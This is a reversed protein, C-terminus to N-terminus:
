AAEGAVSAPWAAAATRTAVRLKASRARPNAAIEAAQPAIARRQALAFSAARAPTPDEPLHRSGRAMAGSRQRLFQKVIRDELSHFSVAALRGDARLLHEAASLGRTLEGLEDNVHLRLAQFTRTAPDIAQKGGRPKGGRPKGGPVVARVIAALAATSTIPADARAAVIARAVRRALREEGLTYIIDALEQEALRNVLDAATATGGADQDMRMDLPGDHRFSFGREPADIQRSSVGLDLVVGDVADVGHAALLARMDGFRGHILQLRGNYAAVLTQGRTISAEDRDVGWVVCDAADLLARSYGGDGFTGDVFIAGARPNLANTIESLLVSTHGSM